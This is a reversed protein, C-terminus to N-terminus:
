VTNMAIQSSISNNNQMARLIEALIGSQQNVAATISSSDMSVPISRNDPLPVVAETGHLIESYGSVPGTSIGGLAKGKQIVPTVPTAAAGVTNFFQEFFGVKEGTATKGTTAISMMNETATTGTAAAASKGYISEVIKQIGKLMTGTVDAYQSLLPLLKDELAVALKQAATSATIFGETLENTPVKAGQIEEEVSAFTGTAIKQARQFAALRDQQIANIKADGTAFAAINMAANNQFQAITSQSYRGQIEAVSRTDLAGQLFKLYIERGMAASESNTAEMIAAEENLVAGHFVVRDRLAKKELETMTAMASNIQAAQTPGMKALEAQFAAINNQEQVQQIKAKADEGTLASILRLNEAYKQTERALTATDFSQGTRRINAMVTATLEAQEEFGFGLRQLQKRIYGSNADFIKGVQGVKRAGEAVGMGSFALDSSQKSIVNSFQQLTLGASVSAERMGQMGTAFVAGAANTANFAKETKALEKSLVENAFKFAKEGSEGVFELASGALSAIEALIPTKSKMGFSSVSQGLLRVGSATAEIASNMLDSSLETGSAGVQLQKVFRGTSQTVNTTLETGFKEAAEKIRQTAAEKVLQQRAEQLEELKKKQTADKAQDALDEIADNLQELARLQDAYGARGKKIEKNLEDLSKKFADAGKKAADGFNKLQLNTIGFREGLARLQEEFERRIEEDM